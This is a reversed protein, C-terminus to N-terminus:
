RGSSESCIIEDIIGLELAEDAYMWWDKRTMSDYKEETIKTNDLIIKKAREETKKSFEMIDKVQGITGDLSIGGEHIMVITNEYAIRKHGCALILSGMSCAYGLAHIHVPTKSQRIVDCLAMGVFLLGGPTNLYIVIPKREKVPLHKDENNIKIIQMIVLEVIDNTIEDNLIIAREQLFEWQIYEQLIPTEMIQLFAEKFLKAM